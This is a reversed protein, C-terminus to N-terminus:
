VSGTLPAPAAGTAKQRMGKSGLCLRATTVSRRPLHSSGAAALPRSCVSRAVLRSAGISAGASGHQGESARFAVPQAKGNLQHAHQRAPIGNGHSCSVPPVEEHGNIRCPEYGQVGERGPDPVEHLRDLVRAAHFDETLDEDGSLCCGRAASAVHPPSQTAPHLRKRRPSAKVM